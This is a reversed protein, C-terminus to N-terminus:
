RIEVSEIVVNDRDGTAICLVEASLEGGESSKLTAEWLVRIEPDNVVVTKVGLISHIEIEYPFALAEAQKECYYLIEHRDLGGSTMEDTAEYGTPDPEETPEPEQTEEPEAEEETEVVASETAEATESAEVPPAEAENDDNGGGIAQIVVALIVVISAILVIPKWIAKKKPPQGNPPGGAPPAINPQNGAPPPQNPQQSMPNPVTM